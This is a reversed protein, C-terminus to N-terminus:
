VIFSLKIDPYSHQHGAFQLDIHKLLSIYPGTRIFISQIIIVVKDMEGVVAQLDVAVAVSDVLGTVGEGECVDLFVVPLLERFELEVHFLMDEGPDLIEDDIRDHRNPGIEIGTISIVEKLKKPKIEQHILISSSPQDLAIGIRIQAHRVIKYSIKQGFHYVVHEAYNEVFFEWCYFGSWLVM